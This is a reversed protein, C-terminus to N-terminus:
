SLECASRRAAGRGVARAASCLILPLSPPLLTAKATRAVSSTRQHKESASGCGRTPPLSHSSSRIEQIKRSVRGVLIIFWAEKKKGVTPGAHRKRGGRGLLLLLLLGAATTAAGDRERWERIRVGGWGTGDDVAGHMWGGAPARPPVPRGATGIRNTAPIRHNAQTNERRM